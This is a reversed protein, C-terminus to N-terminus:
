SQASQESSDSNQRPSGVWAWPNVEELVPSMTFFDRRIHGSGSSVGAGEFARSEMAQSTIPEVGAAM